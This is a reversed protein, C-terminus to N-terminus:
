NNVSYYCRPMVTRCEAARVARASTYVQSSSPLPEHRSCHPTLGVERRGVRRALDGPALLSACRCARVHRVATSPFAPANQRHVSPRLLLVGSLWGGHSFWHDRCDWRRRVLTSVTGIRRAVGIDRTRFSVVATASGVIRPSSLLCRSCDERSPIKAEDHMHETPRVTQPEGARDARSSYLEPSVSDATRTRHLRQTLHQKSCRSPRPAQRLM